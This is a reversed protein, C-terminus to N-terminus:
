AETRKSAARMSWLKRWGARVAGILADWAEDLAQRRLYGARLEAAEMLRAFDETHRYDMRDEQHNPM